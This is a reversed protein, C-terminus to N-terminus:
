LSGKTSPVSGGRREDIRCAADLARALAKFTAEAIHHSNSGRLMLVHLNSRSERAFTELFHGVLETPLQGITPSKYAADSVCYGRGSLDVAVQVLAEDLPVLANGMRVIGGRDGLARDFVQGLVIAADEVTHHADVNLDGTAHLTLDFLGHRAIQEVLHDLMGIGTIVSSAGTGDLALEATISTEKTQRSISARRESM